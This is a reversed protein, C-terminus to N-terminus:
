LIIKRSIRFSNTSCGVSSKKGVRSTYMFNRYSNPKSSEEITEDKKPNRFIQFENLSQPTMQDKQNKKSFLYVKKIHKNLSEIKSITTAKQNILSRNRPIKEIRTNMSNVLEANELINQNIKEIHKNLKNLSEEFRHGYKQSILKHIGPILKILRSKNFIYVIGNSSQCSISLKYYM